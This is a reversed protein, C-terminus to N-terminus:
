VRYAYEDSKSTFFFWGIILTGFAIAASIGMDAWSPLVGNLIPIRFIKVMWYMPNLKYFVMMSESIITEPYIIPTLYMWAVLLIQYMESVDPFFVALSSIVLGFGFTFCILLFIPVPLFLLSLYFKARTILMVIFLPIISLLINVTATGIASLAFITRPVYIRQLLNGGWVLGSMAANTGQSFFNWVILGSLIYVSFPIEGMDARFLKAFVITMVLMTGLPNLMTWAVGLFSRKYRTLIDRRILQALLHRYRGIEKLEGIAPSIRKSSDYLPKNNEFLNRKDVTPFKVMTTLISYAM